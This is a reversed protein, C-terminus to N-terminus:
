RHMMADFHDLPVTKCKAIGHGDAYTAMSFAVGDGKLKDGLRDLFDSDHAPTQQEVRSM